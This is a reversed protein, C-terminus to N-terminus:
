PTAHPTTMTHPLRRVTTGTQNTFCLHSESMTDTNGDAWFAYFDPHANVPRRVYGHNRPSRTTLQRTKHWTQGQDNSTWLAIEGGAGHPQPGPETPAILRWTGDDEIYLSGMDYNHTAPAIETFRWAAGTWHALTWTRPAGVPGPQHHASTIYLIVPLGVADFAIDKMYVLRQEARYDRVLAPGAPDTLPPEITQDDATRWTNGRDSTQLFYLNTRKDVNGGPHMNFATIIRGGKENSVQYHGGMGALKRDPTWTTGAPDSASWYLERVGTYKTLLLVFGQEGITWPQPYTFEREAIHELTAIDYPLRSRYIHGPRKRGRGSVFVWLHGAADIQLSPNDHPDDVGQKDHVVVPKPVRGTRHDYYSIMALLHRADGRTTGGYVFFTKDVQPAYLALPCHKATYTALGGSYKSGYESRQGLDFWIGKYGDITRPPQHTPEAMTTGTLLGLLFATCICTLRANM